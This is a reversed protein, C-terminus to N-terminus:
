RRSKYTQYVTEVILNCLSNSLEVGLRNKAYQQVTFAVRQRRQSGSLRSYLSADAVWRLIRDQGIKRILGNAKGSLLFISLMELLFKM